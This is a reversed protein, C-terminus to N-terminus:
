SETNRRVFLGIIASAVGAIALTVLTKKFM